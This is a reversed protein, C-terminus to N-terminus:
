GEKVEDLDRIFGEDLEQKYRDKIPTLFLRM